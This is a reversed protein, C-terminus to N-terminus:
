TELRSPPTVKALSAESSYRREQIAFSQFASINRVGHQGEGFGALSVLRRYEVHQPASKRLSGV